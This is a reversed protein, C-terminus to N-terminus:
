SKHSEASENNKSGLRMVLNVTKQDGEIVEKLGKASVYFIHTFSTFALNDLTIKLGKKSKTLEMFGVREFDVVAWACGM